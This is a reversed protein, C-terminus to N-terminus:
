IAILTIEDPDVFSLGTPVVVPAVTELLIASAGDEQLLRSGDELLIAFGAGATVVVVGTELLIASTGDEQLLKSGDELLLFAV